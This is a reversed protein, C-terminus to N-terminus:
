RRSKSYQLHQLHEHYRRMASVFDRNTLVDISRKENARILANRAQEFTMRHCAILYAAILSASRNIGAHCNILVPRHSQRAMEVGRDMYQYFEDLTLRPGIPEDGLYELKGTLRDRTTLTHYAIGLRKYMSRTKKNPEWGSINVITKIGAAKLGTPDNATDLSGIWVGNAVHAFTSDFIGDEHELRKRQHISCFNTGSVVGKACRGFTSTIEACQQEDSIYVGTRRVHAASAATKASSTSATARKPSTPRKKM